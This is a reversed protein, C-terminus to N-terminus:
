DGPALSDLDESMFRFRFFLCINFIHARVSGLGRLVDQFLGRNGVTM